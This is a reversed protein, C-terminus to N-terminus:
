LKQEMAGNWRAGCSPCLWGTDTRRASIALGVALRALKCDHIPPERRVPWSWRRDSGAPRGRHPPIFSAQDEPPIHWGEADRVAHKFRRERCWREVVALPVGWRETVRIPDDPATGHEWEIKSMKRLHPM